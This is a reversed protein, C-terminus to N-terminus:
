DKEVCFGIYGETANMKPHITAPNGVVVSHSPVDFNVFSNAAILVDDGIHIAGIVTSNVGIYVRNGITPAGERGGRNESGITVGKHLNVNSGICAESNVTIGFAHGLYLGSGISANGIELGYKKSITHCLIKYILNNPSTNRLRWFLVYRINHRCIINVIGSVISVKTGTMRYYDDKFKNNM